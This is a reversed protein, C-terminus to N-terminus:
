RQTLHEALRLLSGSLWGAVSVPLLDSIDNERRFKGKPIEEMDDESLICNDIVDSMNEETEAEAALKLRTKEAENMRIITEGADIALAESFIKLIANVTSGLSGPPITDKINWITGLCSLTSIYFNNFYEIRLEMIAM